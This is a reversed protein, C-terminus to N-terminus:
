RQEYGLIDTFKIFRLDEGKMKVHILLVTDFLVVDGVKIPMDEEVALVEGAGFKQAEHMDPLIVSGGEEEDKLVRVLVNENLPQINM